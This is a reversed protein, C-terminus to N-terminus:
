GSEFLDKTAASRLIVPEGLLTQEDGGVGQREAGWRARRRAGRHGLWRIRHRAAGHTSGASGGQRERAGRVSLFGAWRRSADRCGQSAADGASRSLASDGGGPRRWGAPLAGRRAPAERIKSRD